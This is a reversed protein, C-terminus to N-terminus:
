SGLAADANWMDTVILWHGEPQRRLVLLQKGTYTFPETRGGFFATITFFFRAHALDGRGEVETSHLTWQTVSDVAAFYERIKERGREAPANVPPRM